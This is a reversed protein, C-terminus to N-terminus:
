NMSKATAMNYTNNIILPSKPPAQVENLASPMLTYRRKIRKITPNGSEQYLPVNRDFGGLLRFDKLVDQLYRYITFSLYIIM